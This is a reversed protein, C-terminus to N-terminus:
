KLGVITVHFYVSICKCFHRLPYFLKVNNFIFNKKTDLLQKCKRKESMERSEPLFLVHSTLLFLQSRTNRSYWNSFLIYVKDCFMILKEARGKRGRGRGRRTVCRHTKFTFCLIITSFTLFHSSFIFYESRFGINFEEAFTKGGKTKTCCSMELSTDLIVSILCLMKYEDEQKVCEYHKVPSSKFCSCLLMWSYQIM